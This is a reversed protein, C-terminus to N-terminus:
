TAPGIPLPARISDVLVSWSGKILNIITDSVLTLVGHPQSCQCTDFGYLIHNDLKRM